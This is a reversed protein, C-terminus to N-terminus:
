PLAHRRPRRINIPGNGFEDARRLMMLSRRREEVNVVRFQEKRSLHGPADVPLERTAPELWQFFAGFRSWLHHAEDQM